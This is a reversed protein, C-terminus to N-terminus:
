RSRRPCIPAALQLVSAMEDDTLALRRPRRLGAGCGNFDPNSPSNRAAMNGPPQGRLDTFVSVQHPARGLLEWNLRKDITRFEDTNLRRAKLLARGTRWLEVM